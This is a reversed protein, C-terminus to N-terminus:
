LATDQTYIRLELHSAVEITKAFRIALLRHNAVRALWRTIDQASHAKLVEPTLTEEIQTLLTEGMQLMTQASCNWHAECFSQSFNRCQKAVEQRLAALTAVMADSMGPLHPCQELASMVKWSTKCVRQFHQRAEERFPIEQESFAPPTLVSSWKAVEALSLIMDSRLTEPPLTEKNPQLLAELCRLAKVFYDRFERQPLVPWLVRQYFAAFSLGLIMGLYTSAVDYFTVVEQFNLAFSAILANLLLNGQYTMSPLGQYILWGLWFLSSAVFVNMWLYETLFPSLLFVGTAWPIGYLIAKILYTFVGMDGRSSTYSRSMVPFLFAFVPILTAGPPNLWNCFILASVGSLAARIGNKIWIPDIRQTITWPENCGHFGKHFPMKRMLESMTKIQRIIEEILIYAISVPMLKVADEGAAIFKEQTDLFLAAIEKGIQELRRLGEEHPADSDETCTNALVLAIATQLKQFQPKMKNTFDPHLGQVASLDVFHQILMGQAGIMKSYTDLHQSFYVSEREGLKLLLRMQGILSSTKNEWDGVVTDSVHELLVLESFISLKSIGERALHLFDFRAYRPWLVSSVVVSCFVGLLIEEVRDLAIFWVNQPDYMGRTIVIIMTTGGLFFAYQYRNGGFFYVCTGLILGTSLLFLLPHDMLNGVLLVALGGGGVTGVARLVAKDAVAGLYVPLMLMLVTTLSWIPTDLALLESLYLALCGAFALKIGFQNRSNRWWALTFFSEIADVVKIIYSALFM